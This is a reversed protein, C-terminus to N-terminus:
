LATPRHEAGGEEQVAGAAKTAGPANVPSTPANQRNLEGPEPERALEWSKVERGHARESKVYGVQRIIGRSALTSTVGGLWRPDMDAPIAMRERLDNITAQGKEQLIQVFLPCARALLDARNQRFLDLALQKATESATDHPHGSHEPGGGTAAPRSVMADWGGDAPRQTACGQLLLVLLGSALLWWRTKISIM